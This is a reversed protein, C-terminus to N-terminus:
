HAGLEDKIAQEYAEREEPDAKRLSIFRILNPHRETFVAVAVRGQILGIGQWREEGYDEKEDADVLFPFQGAFLEEGDAFDFGHKQINESNKQEDWEFEM